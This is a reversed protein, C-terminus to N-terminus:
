NAQLGAVQPPIFNGRIEAANFDVVRNQVLEKDPLMFLARSITAPVGFIYAVTGLLIRFDLWANMHDIYFLDYALKRRVSDLDTDAPLQIQALGAVGPRVSLRRQYNPIAQSLMPLFEPREPRPGILSMQGCIVNFLQPLEDIHSRRLFRGIL